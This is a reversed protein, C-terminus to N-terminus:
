AKRARRSFFDPQRFEMAGPVAFQEFGAANLESSAANAKRRQWEKIFKVVHPKAIEILMESHMGVRQAPIWVRGIPLRVSDNIALEKHLKPAITERFKRKNVDIPNRLAITIRLKDGDKQYNASTSVGHQEQAFRVVHNIYQEVSTKAM